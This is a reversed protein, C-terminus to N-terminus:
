SDPSLIAGVDSGAKGIEETRLALEGLIERWATTVKDAFDPTAAAIERKIDVFHAPLAVDPANSM